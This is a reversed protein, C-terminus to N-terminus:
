LKPVGIPKQSSRDGQNKQRILKFKAEKIEGPRNGEAVLKVTRAINKLNTIKM